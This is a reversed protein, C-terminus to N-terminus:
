PELEQGTWEPEEALEQAYSRRQTEVAPHQLWCAAEPMPMSLAAEETETIEELLSTM